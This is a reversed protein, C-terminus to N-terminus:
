YVMGAIQATFMKQFIAVRISRRRIATICIRRLGTVYAANMISERRLWHKLRRSFRLPYDVFSVNRLERTSLMSAIRVNTDQM